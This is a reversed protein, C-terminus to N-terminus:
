AQRPAPNNNRRVMTALASGRECTEWRSSGAEGTLSVKLSEQSRPAKTIEWMRIIQRVSSIDVKCGAGALDFDVVTERTGHDATDHNTWRKTFRTPTAIQELSMVRTLRM